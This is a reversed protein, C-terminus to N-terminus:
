SQSRKVEGGATSILRKQAAVAVDDFAQELNSNLSLKQLMDQEENTLKVRLKKLAVLIEYAQSYFAEQSIAKL